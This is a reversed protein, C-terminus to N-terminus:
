KEEAKAIVHNVLMRIKARDDGTEMHSTYELIAKLADLMPQYANVARVIEMSGKETLGGEILINKLAIKDYDKLITKM